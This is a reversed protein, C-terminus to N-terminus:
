LEGREMKRRTEVFQEWSEDIQDAVKVGFDRALEMANEKTTDPDSHWLAVAMIAGNLAAFQDANILTRAMSNAFAHTGAAEHMQAVFAEAPDAIAPMQGTADSTM